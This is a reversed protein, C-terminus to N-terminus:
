NVKKSSWWRILHEKQLTLEEFRKKADYNQKIYQVVQQAKQDSLEGDVLAQIDLDTISVSM